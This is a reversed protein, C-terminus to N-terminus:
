IDWQGAQEQSQEPLWSFEGGAFGEEDEKESM